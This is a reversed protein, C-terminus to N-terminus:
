HMSTRPDPMPPPLSSARVALNLSLRPTLASELARALTEVTYPKALWHLGQAFAREARENPAHGSVMIAALTPYLRHIEEYLQLGDLDENLIMDCLVVDYPSPAESAAAKVFLEFAPRGSSFVDVNYGLHDLVRRATRCQTLDDDVLLVRARGRAPGPRASTAESVLECRPFYLTFTTGAGVTSTVDVFGDHDKVVGHVIALGLGSGAHDGEEKRSFFPEFVRPLAESAIGMGTDSVSVVVYDGSALTEYGTVPETLQRPYTRVLLQGTGAISQIANIALNTIARGLHAESARVGLPESHLDLVLHVRDSAETVLRLADGALCSAVVRNLDQPQKDTKGQRGLTLLDKITQTARLAAMKISEVDGRVTDMGGGALGLSELEGLILDPLAVLPGLANNLDHAVGGALVALAEMRKATAQRIQVSREHLNTKDVVEQHLGTTRLAASVQDRVMQYGTTHATYEFVAVGLSQTEFVLPFVLSSHRRDSPTVGPPVLRTAPYARATPRMREGDFLCAIPELTSSTGGAFRSLVATHIGVVPLNAAIAARLTKMDLAGAVRDATSLLQLYADDVLLEHDLQAEAGMLTVRELADFWLDDIDLTAAVRFEQRLLHIADHLASCVTADEGGQDLLEDIARALAGHARVLDSRVAELLKAAHAKPTSSGQRLADTLEVQLRTANHTLYEAAGQPAASAQSGSIFRFRTRCGCSRRVILRAPIRQVAPVDCGAIQDLVNRLARDAIAELPQAVTTLARRGIRAIRWNDFGTVPVDPAGAARARLAEVCGVAMADNAAVVGDFEVGRAIIKRLAEHGAWRMFQGCAIREPDWAIGHRELVERYVAHRQEAEPHGPPGAIFALKRCDHVRILHEVVLAMAERDDVVVSPVGPLVLGVSCLPLPRFQEVFEILGGTGCHTALLTSAVAVGDACEKRILEFVVNHAASAPVPDGVARGYVLLLNVDLEQARAHFAERVEAEYGGAAFCMYDLLLAITPRRPRHSRRAGLEWTHRSFTPPVSSRDRDVPAPM